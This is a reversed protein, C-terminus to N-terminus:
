AVSENRQLKRFFSLVAQPSCVFTEEAEDFSFSGCLDWILSLVEDSSIGLRLAEHDVYEGFCECLEERTFGLLTAFRSDQSLDTFFNVCSDLGSKRLPTVGTVFCFRLKGAHMKTIDFFRATLERGASDNEGQDSSLLADYDDVILVASSEEQAVLFRMWDMIPDEETPKFTFGGRRLANRLMDGLWLRLSNSNTRAQLLASFNLLIVPHRRKNWLAEGKLGAFAASGETFVAEIMSALLSKGFGSPRALCLHRGARILEVVRDTKDVYIRGSERLSLFSSDGLPMREMDPRQM